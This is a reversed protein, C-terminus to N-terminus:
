ELPLDDVSFMKSNKVAAGRKRREEQRKRKLQEEKLQQKQKYTLTCPVKDFCNANEFKQIREAIDKSIVKSEFGPEQMKLRINELLFDQEASRDKYAKPM